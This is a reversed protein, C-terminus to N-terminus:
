IWSGICNLVFASASYFHVDINYLFGVNSEHFIDLYLFSADYLYVQILNRLVDAVINELM